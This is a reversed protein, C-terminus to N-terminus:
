VQKRLEGQWKRALSEFEKFANPHTKQIDKIYEEADEFHNIYTSRMWSKYFGEDLIEKRISIAILEYHNLFNDVETKAKRESDTEAFLLTKLGSSRKRESSFVTYIREFYEDSESKLIVDLTARKRAIERNTKIANLAVAAGVGASVLIALPSVWQGSTILEVTCTVPDTM